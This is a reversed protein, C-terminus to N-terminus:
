LKYFFVRNSMVMIYNKFLELVSIKELWNNFVTDDVNRNVIRRLTLLNDSILVGIINEKGRSNWNHM